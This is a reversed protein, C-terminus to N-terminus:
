DDQFFDFARDMQEGLFSVHSPAAMQLHDAGVSMCMLQEGGVFKYWGNSGLDAGTKHPLSWMVAGLKPDEMFGPYATTAINREKALQNFRESHTCRDIMGKEAWILATRRAPPEEGKELPPPNYVAVSAFLAQLHLRTNDTGRWVGSDDQGSVADFMALGIENDNHVSSLRPACMDILLLGSVSRGAGSLQRCVEYAMMAGGSFGGIWFPINAPQKKLLAEVILKAAGSIGVDPTLRAPCHLYPSDIGYIAVKSKIAAPLHIYTAITGTGDAIMYFPPPQKPNPGRSRGAGQLLTIKVNPPPSSDDIESTPRAGVPQPGNKPAEAAAADVSVDTSRETRILEPEERFSLSTEPRSDWSSESPSDSDASPTLSPAVAFQRRLDGIVVNEILFSPALELGSTESVKSAIEISMISDIGIDALVTDDTLEPLDVGTEVAITQVIIDFVGHRSDPTGTPQKREEPEIEVNAAPAAEKEAVMQPSTKPASQTVPGPTRPTGGLAKRLTANSIIHFNLGSCQAILKNNDFVFVDCIKNEVDKELVRVYTLYVKGAEFPVTQEFSDFGSNIFCSEAATKLNLPNANVAFGALHTVSEGWYPSAVFRTGVPHDKLVIEAAAESFDSSIFAEKISKFGSDYQVTPAFLAYFIDPQFRHGRGETASRIIEDMRAKVFYSTRDWSAQLGEVDPRITLSCSGLEYTPGKSASTAKWSVQIDNSAEKLTATTVLEGDSGVLSKTLPRKLSPSRLSLKTVSADTKKGNADLAYAAAAFAAECFASGPLIPLDQMRHGDIVASLGPEALAARLTVSTRGTSSSESVVYQALTSIMQQRAATRDQTSLAEQSGGTAESFTIWYDKMDWAYSPLTLMELHREYLQHFARWDIPIGLLYAAAMCKSVSAWATSSNPGELTSMVRQTAPSLTTASLAQVFNVPQRTQQALYQGDFTGQSDVISGLLTSAVPIRPALFTVGAAITKYDSLILDVQFSHFGYPVALAKSRAALDQQMNGIEDASGSIVTGTTSNICSISCTAYQPHSDLFAQVHAASMSVSLMAFTDAECRDLLLGARRGVLYIADALSLVGAAYLAAYEGLSHGMVMEPHVGVSEWYAALGVELALVALQTQTTTMSAMDAEANAILNVFQPFGHQEGIRACLDVAERFSASTRYLECGMGAYHSGQGTFVFVVPPVHSSPSTWSSSDQDAIDNELKAVLTSTSTATCAFRIPHHMRRATTTYAVDEIKTDPNARLWTLLQRRNELHAAPTRASLVVVHSSRPDAAAEAKVAAVHGRGMYEELLMCANGGAADFNNLLIRRPTNGVRKFEKPQSLIEVNLNELPPFKPNLAHPMGAQPPITNTEFMKICKMLSAMGAAGEGHGFNAKVGGVPVPGDARSKHKLLNGVAGIEAPDGVQTGTGHMEVYSIDDASVHANRLVKRFLREQAGADSTTISPSNGSHNRGSAAIVALIKDNDAEADELRKLVVSGVFDGRCYGDADDRFTKCNGTDSLVGSKSLSAFSHPYNLINGAGAVAMDIDGTQLSMCALHVCSTTSACASDLAYTPGEWNFQWAVRGPGFARQVGPLTYPDCGLTPHSQDHWDDTVQGYFTAIRNPDTSKTKGDSYGAMELAEYTSMLFHRHCPDMLMAERPSIHFFRSDFHGPKDMFCGYRTTTTCKKEGRGHEASYFEDIDFRDKPVETCTDTKSMIIDWFENINGCMPGRGSVGVVAIRGVPSAPQRTDEVQLLTREGELTIVKGAKELTGLLYSTHSTTGMEIVRVTEAAGLAATMKGIAKTIDLGRSLVQACIARLMDGWTTYTADPEDMGWLNSGTAYIARTLLSKNDGVIFDIDAETLEITHQLAHIKLPNKAVRKMAPCEHIFRELVSPPGIITSWGAGTVGPKARKLPPIGVSQQFEELSKSLDELAVGVVAWGWVGRRDEVSRSKISTFKCLRVLLRAIELLAARLTDFDESVAWASMSILGGSIGLWETNGNNSLISADRRAWLLLNSARVTHLLLCHAMGLEDTTNRYREGLEHLSSFTGLSDQLFPDIVIARTEENVTRTLGGLFEQLWPMSGALKYVQDLGDNWSDTQDGFLLVSKTQQAAKSM